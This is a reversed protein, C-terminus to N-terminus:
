SQTVSGTSADKDDRSVFATVCEVCL